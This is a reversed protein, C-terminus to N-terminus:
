KMLSLRYKEADWNILKCVEEDSLLNINDCKNIRLIINYYCKLQIIKTNNFKDSAFTGYNKIFILEKGDASSNMFSEVNKYICAKQGLFVVHDPCIAWNKDLIELFDKNISLQQIEQNDIIKYTINNKRIEKGKDFYLLEKKKTNKKFINSLKLLINKLGEVSNESIVVGHNRLFLINTDSSEMLSEKISQALESGPTKYDIIKWSLDKPMINNIVNHCDDKIIDAIIDVAHLHLVYKQKMLAHLITEISPKLASNNSPIPKYSYNNSSIEKNIVDLSVPVFIDEIGANELWTGSAKVWLTGSEKWSINGGAGQVLLENGGIDICLDTILKRNETNEM